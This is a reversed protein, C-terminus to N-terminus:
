RHQIKQHELFGKTLHSRAIDEAESVELQQECAVAKKPPQASGCFSGLEVLKQTDLMGLLVALSFSCTHLMPSDSVCYWSLDHGQCPMSIGVAEM